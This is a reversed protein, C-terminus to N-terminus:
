DLTQTLKALVLFRRSYDGAYCTSLIVIRDDPSLTVDSAVRADLARSQLLEDFFATFQEADTFDCSALIHRNDFPVAAFIEYHLERQKQYLVLEHYKELWETSSYISQLSSFMSGDYMQHGYIVTVPDDLSTSNYTSETYVSGASSDNGNVDHKLYYSDEGDRQLVPDSIITGPLDLWAYIDSNQRWLAEFDVPSQYAPKHVRPLQELVPDETQASPAAQTAEEQATQLGERMREATQEVATQQNKSCACLLLCCLLAATLRLARRM